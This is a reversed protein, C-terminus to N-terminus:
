IILHPGYLFLSPINELLWGKCIPCSKNSKLKHLVFALALLLTIAIVLAVILGYLLHTVQSSDDINLCLNSRVITEKYFFVILNISHFICYCSVQFSCWPEEELCLRGVHSWPM